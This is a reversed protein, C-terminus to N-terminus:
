QAQVDLTDLIAEAAKKGEAIAEVVTKGGNAWDGGAFVGKHKQLSTWEDSREQGVALILKDAPLTLSSQGDAGTFLIDTIRGNKGNITKPFFETLIPVGMNVALLTEVINASAEAIPRCFVLKVSDAGLAQATTACDMAVDGDGVVVIRNGQESPEYRRANQLYDLAHVVGDLNKGPLDLTKPKWLGAGIFVADYQTSLTDLDNASVSTNYRFEVGLKEIQALDFDIIEQPLRFHPIGLALMGGARSSQEIITVQCGARALVSACALSAPGAGICVIKKGNPAGAKLINMDMEREKKTVFRQLKAIKVPTDLGARVCANECLENVPCIMACSGGLPNNERITEAAGWINKFRLSRIFRAPDTGAPCAESCPADHCLLCRSAEALATRSDFDKELPTDDTVCITRSM